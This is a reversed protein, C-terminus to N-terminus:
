AVFTRVLSSRKWYWVGGVKRHEPGRGLRAWSRLTVDPIDSFKAAETTTLWVDDTREGDATFVPIAVRAGEHIFQERGM